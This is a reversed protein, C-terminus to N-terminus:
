EDEMVRRRSDGAAGMPQARMPSTRHLRSEPMRQTSASRQGEPGGAKQAGYQRTEPMIAPAGLRSESVQSEAISRFGFRSGDGSEMCSVRIRLVDSKRPLIRIAVLVAAFFLDLPALVPAPMRRVLAFFDDDFFDERRFYEGEAPLFTSVSILSIFVPLSLDPRFPLFTVFGFCAIAM